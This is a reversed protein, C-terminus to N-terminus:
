LTEEIEELIDTAYCWHSIECDLWSAYGEGCSEIYSDHHDVRIIDYNPGDDYVVVSEQFDRRVVIYLYPAIPILKDGFKDYDGAIRVIVDRNPEPKCTDTLKHFKM